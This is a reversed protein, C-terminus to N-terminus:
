RLEIIDLKEKLDKVYEELTKDGFSITPILEIPESEWTVEPFWDMNLQWWDDGIWM